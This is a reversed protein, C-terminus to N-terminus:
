LRSVKKTRGVTSLKVNFPFHGHRGDGVRALRARAFAPHGNAVVAQAQVLGREALARAVVLALEDDLSRGADTVVVLPNQPVPLADGVVNYHSEDGYRVGDSNM